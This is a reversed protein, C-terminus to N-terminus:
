VHHQQLMKPLNSVMNKKWHDAMVDWKELLTNIHEIADHTKNPSTNELEKTKAAHEVIMKNLVVKSLNSKIIALERKYRQDVAEHCELCFKHGRNTIEGLCIVCVKSM